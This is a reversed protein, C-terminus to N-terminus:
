EENVVLPATKDLRLRLCIDGCIHDRFFTKIGEIGFDGVCYGNITHTMPDFLIMGDKQGVLVPTGQLDALVLSQNSHGWVFHALAYIT